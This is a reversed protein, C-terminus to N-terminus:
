RNGKVAEAMDVKPFERRAEEMDEVTWSTKLFTKLFMRKSTGDGSLLWARYQESQNLNICIFICFLIALSYKIASTYKKFELQGITTLVSALGLAMIPYSQVVARLGFGMYWWCWWSSLIYLNLVIFVIAPFALDTVYKRMYFLGVFAFFMIPSYIFWGNRFSFLMKFIKPDTWYFKEDGYTYYWWEGTYTRWFILQPLLMLFFMVGMLILHIKHKWFLDCKTRLAAKSNIGYFIFILGIIIDTPRIMMILGIVFGVILSKGFSPKEHWKITLWIFVSILFFLSCHVRESEKIVYVFLNSAFFLLLLTAATIHDTFFRRLIFSLFLLGLLGYLVCGYHVALGYSASYGDLVENNKIALQHGVFFFPTYMVSMGYSYKPILRGYADHFVTNNREHHKTYDHHIFTAPVYWYSIATDSV